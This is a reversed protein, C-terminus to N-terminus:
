VPALMRVCMGVLVFVHPVKLAMYIVELSRFAKIVCYAVLFVVVCSVLVFTMNIDSLYKRAFFLGLNWWNTVLLLDLILIEWPVM